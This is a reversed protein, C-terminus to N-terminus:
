NCGTTFRDIAFTYVSLNDVSKGRVVGTVTASNKRNFTQFAEFYSNILGIGGIRPNLPLSDYTFLLERDTLTVAKGVQTAFLFGIVSAQGSPALSCSLSIRFPGADRNSIAQTQGQDTAAQTQGQDVKQSEKVEERGDPLITTGDMTVATGDSSVTTGDKLIRTIGMANQIVAEKGVDTRVAGNGELNIVEGEKVEKDVGNITVTQASTVVREAAQAPTEGPGWARAQQAISANQILVPALVASFAYVLLSRSSSSRKLIKSMM